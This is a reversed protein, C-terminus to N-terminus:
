AKPSFRRASTFAKHVLVWQSPWLASKEFISDYKHLKAVAICRSIHNQYTPNLSAPSSLVLLYYVLVEKLEITRQSILGGPTLRQRKINGTSRSLVYLQGGIRLPDPDVNRSADVHVKAIASM